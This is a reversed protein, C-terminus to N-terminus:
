VAAEVAGVIDDVVARLMGEDECEAMV